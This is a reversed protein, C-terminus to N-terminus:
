LQIDALKKREALRKKALEVIKPHDQIEAVKEALYEAGGLEKLTKGAEKIKSTIYAKAVVICEKELPDVARRGGGAAALSFTYEADYEAVFGAAKTQAEASYEGDEGALEQIRKRLANSINECRTQNLTKAEAPNIVHGEAYPLSITFPLGAIIMERTQM